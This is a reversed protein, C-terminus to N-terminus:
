FAFYRKLGMLVLEKEIIVSDDLQAAIMDAGGGTLICEYDPYLCRAHKVAGVVGFLVGHNVADFTTKGLEISDFKGVKVAIQQTGAYLAHRQMYTNPLIYGGLHHGKDIFDITLATGCGVVCQRKTGEVVGLMQLWRDIGLQNPDYSSSLLPHQHNVKAFEFDVNLGTLTSQIAHNIKTGLVSSIGVFSPKYQAFTGILGLLLENPAKLHERADCKIINGQENIIWYKLRTNGLDLWLKTM